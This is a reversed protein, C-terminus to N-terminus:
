TVRWRIGGRHERLGQLYNSNFSVIGSAVVSTADGFERAVADNNSADHRAHHHRDADSRRVKVAHHRSEDGAPICAGIFEPQRVAIRIQGEEQGDAVIPACNLTLPQFPGVKKAKGDFAFRRVFVFAFSRRLRRRAMWRRRLRAGAAERRRGPSRAKEGPPLNPAAPPRLRNVRARMNDEISRSRPASRLRKRAPALRHGRGVRPTRPRL